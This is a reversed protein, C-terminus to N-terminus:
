LWGRQEAPLRALLARARLRFDFPAQARDLALVSEGVLAALEGATSRRLLDMEFFREQAHMYGEGRLADEFSEGAVRPVAHADLDVTVAAALGAVRAEGERRPLAATVVWYAAILLVLITGLVAFTCRKIFDIRM